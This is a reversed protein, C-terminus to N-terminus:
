LKKRQFASHYGKMIHLGCKTYGNVRGHAHAARVKQSQQTVSSQVRHVFALETGAQLTKPTSGPQRHQILHYNM